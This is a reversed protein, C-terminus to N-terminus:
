AKRRRRAPPQKEPAAHGNTPQVLCRSQADRWILIEVVRTENGYEPFESLKRLLRVTVDSLKFSKPIKTSM